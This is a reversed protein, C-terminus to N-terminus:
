RGSGFVMNRQARDKISKRQPLWIRYSISNRLEFTDVLPRTEGGKAAITSEKLAPVITGEDFQKQIGETWKYGLKILAQNRTLRGAMVESFLAGTDRIMRERNADMWVRLWSRSPAGPVLGLEHAAALQGVPIGATDHIKAAEKGQVGLTVTGMDGLSAALKKFGRDKDTISVKSPPM